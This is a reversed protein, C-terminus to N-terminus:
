EGEPWLRKILTVDRPDFYVNAGDVFHRFEGNAFIAALDEDEGRDHIVWIEGEHPTKIGAYDKLRALVEGDTSSEFLERLDAQSIGCNCEVATLKESM